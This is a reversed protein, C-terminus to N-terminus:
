EQANKYEKWESTDKERELDEYWDFSYIVLNLNLTLRYCPYDGVFVSILYTKSKHGCVLINYGIDGYPPMINSISQNTLRAGPRMFMLHYGLWWTALGMKTFMSISSSCLYKGWKKSLFLLILISIVFTMELEGMLNGNRQLNQSVFM